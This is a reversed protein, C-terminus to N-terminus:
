DSLEAIRTKIYEVIDKKDPKRELLAKIRESMEAKEIKKIETKSARGRKPEKVSEKIHHIVAARAAPGKPMDTPRLVPLPVSTFDTMVVTNRIPTLAPLPIGM